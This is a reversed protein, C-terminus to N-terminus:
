SMSTPLCKKKPVATSSPPLAHRGHAKRSEGRGDRHQRRRRRGCSGDLCPKVQTKMEKMWGIVGKVNGPIDLKGAQWAGTAILIHTYGLKKLDEVSPAPAGCKVEVGYREMLAVDKDIAEDSIRFAPIVYRPM